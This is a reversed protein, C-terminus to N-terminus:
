RKSHSHSQASVIQRSGCDHPQDCDLSWGCSAFRSLLCMGLRLRKEEATEQAEEEPESDAAVQKEAQGADHFIDAGDDLDPFAPERKRKGGPPARTGSKVLSGKAKKRTPQRSSM